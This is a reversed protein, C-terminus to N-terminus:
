LLWLLSFCPLSVTGVQFWCQSKGAVTTPVHQTSSNVLTIETKVPPGPHPSMALQPNGPLTPMGCHRLETETPCLHQSQPKHTNTSQSPWSWVQPPLFSTSNPLPSNGQLTNSDLGSSLGCPPIPANTRSTPDLLNGVADVGHFSNQSTKQFPM